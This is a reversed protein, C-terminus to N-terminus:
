KNGGYIYHIITNISVFSQELEGTSYMETLM